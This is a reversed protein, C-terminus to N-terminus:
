SDNAAKADRKAIAELAGAPLSKFMEEIRNKAAIRREVIINVLNFL